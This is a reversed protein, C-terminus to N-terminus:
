IVKPKYKYYAPANYQIQVGFNFFGNNSKHYVENELNSNYKLNFKNEFLPKPYFLYKLFISLELQQTPKGRLEVLFELNIPKENYLYSYTLEKLDDNLPNRSPRFNIIDSKGKKYNKLFSYGMGLGINLFANRAVKDIILVRKKIRFPISNIQSGNTFSLPRSSDNINYFETSLLYSYQYFGLEYYFNDNRCQGVNIEWITGFDKRSNVSESSYNILKSGMSNVGGGLNAYFKIDFNELNPLNKIGNERNRNKPLQYYPTEQAYTNSTNSICVILAFYKINKLFM